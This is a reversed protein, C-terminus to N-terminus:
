RLYIFGREISRDFSLRSRFSVFCCCWCLLLLLWMEAARRRCCHCGGGILRQSLMAALPENFTAAMFPVSTPLPAYTHPAPVPCWFLYYIILILYQNKIIYLSQQRQWNSAENEDLQRVNDSDIAVSDVVVRRPLLLWCIAEMSVAVDSSTAWRRGHVDHRSAGGTNRVGGWGRFCQMRIIMLTSDMSKISMGHHNLVIAAAIADPLLAMTPLPSLYTSTSRTFSVPTLNGGGVVSCHDFHRRYFPRRM